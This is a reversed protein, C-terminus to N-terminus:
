PFPDCTVSHTFQQTVSPVSAGARRTVGYVRGGVLWGQMDAAMWDDRIKGYGRVTTCPGVRGASAGSLELTLSRVPAPSLTLTYPTPHM